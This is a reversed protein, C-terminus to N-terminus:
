NFPLCVTFVSGNGEESEVTIKGNHKDIFEKCLILGLGTSPEEETGERRVKKDIKFLDNRLESSMGIGDDTVSILVVKGSKEATIKVSGKRNTFKIANSILNRLITMLMAEDAKLIIDDQKSFNLKVEKREANIRFVEINQEVLKNLSLKVPKFFMHGRQMMSWELLNTLLGFLNHASDNMDNAIFRLEEASMDEVSTKLLNTFEIFGMFPTRLDHAIISFLKDKEAILNLLKENKFKIENEIHKRSTIDRMISQYTGDPMMKSRMEVTINTGDPKTLTRENLLVKGNQLLDFRFPNNELCEKTFPLSSIHKGVIKERPLGAIDCMSHNADTVIGENSGLLIGDVALEVLERFRNESKLLVDEARKRETIDEAVGLIAPKEIGPHNYPIKHTQFWGLSGDKRIVREEKIFVEKESDIVKRDYKVYWHIQEPTAGYDADTKGIVEEPTTKFLDALSQNVMLFKGDYDKAFIYSPVLDLIKKLQIRLSVEAEQAKKRETIDNVTALIGKKGNNLIIAKERLEIIGVTGDKRINEIENELFEGSLIKEIDNNIKEHREPLSLRRVDMGKLEEKTYQLMRSIADNSQLIIGNEDLIIIGSPSIDFLSQYREENKILDSEAQRQETIDRISVRRGLNRGDASVIKRCFHYIWRVEGAKTLIRYETEEIEPMSLIGGADKRIHKKYIDKDDPHVVKECLDKDSFFESYKYGSIRECSPSMYIIEGEPSLWYEWDYTYDAFTRFKEESKTIEERSMKLKENMAKEETVDRGSGVTGILNGYTDFIPAKHVDLYLFKGRVNGYEDFQKPTKCELVVSDTDRCIEGFTHWEPNEKHKDRERQAFFMDDKGIPEDTDKAFLLKECMAKNAFTYRNKLDKAWVLDSSNDLMLRIMGYLEKYKVDSKRRADESNILETIDRFIALVHKEGLIDILSYSAEIISQKGSRFMSKKVSRENRKGSSLFELYYNLLKAQEAKDYVATFSKGILSTKDFGTLDCFAKNVDITKGTFDTVRMGEASSEWVASLLLEQQKSM